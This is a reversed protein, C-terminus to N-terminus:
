IPNFINLMQNPDFKYIDEIVEQLLACYGKTWKGKGKSSTWKKLTRVTQNLITIISDVSKDALEANMTTLLHRIISEIKKKGKEDQLMKGVEKWSEDWRGKLINTPLLNSEGQMMTFALRQGYQCLSEVTQFPVKVPVTSQKPEQESEPEGYIGREAYPFPIEPEEFDYSGVNEKGIIPGQYPNIEVPRIPTTIPQHASLYEFRNKVDEIDVDEYGLEIQVDKIIVQIQEDNGKIEEGFLNVISNSSTKARITIKAIYESKNNTVVSLFTDNEKGQEELTGMDVSSFFTGMQNHSHILGWQYGIYGKELMYDFFSNSNPTFETSGASGINELFIDKAKMTVTNGQKEVTFFIPGSWENRPLQKCLYKAQTDVKKSLILRFDLKNSNTAM